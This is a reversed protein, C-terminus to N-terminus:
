PSAQGVGVTQRGLHVVEVTLAAAARLSPTPLSVVRRLSGRPHQGGPVTM